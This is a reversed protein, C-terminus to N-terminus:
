GSLINDKGPNSKQKTLIGLAISDQNIHGNGAKRAVRGHLATTHFHPTTDIAEKTIDFHSLFAVWPNFRRGTCLIGREDRKNHGRITGETCTCIGKKLQHKIKDLLLPTKTHAAGMWM